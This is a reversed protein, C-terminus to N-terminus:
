HALKILLRGNSIIRYNAKKRFGNGYRHLSIETKSLTVRTNRRPVGQMISFENDYGKLLHHMARIRVDLPQL